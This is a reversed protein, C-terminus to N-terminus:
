SIVRLTIEVQKGELEKADSHTLSEDWSQVRVFLGVDSDEVGNLCISESVLAMGGDEKNFEITGLFRKTKAM